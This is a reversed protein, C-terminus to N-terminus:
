LSDSQVQREERVEDVLDGQYVGYTQYISQRIQSLAALIEPPSLRQRDPHSTPNKILLSKMFNLAVQLQSEPLIELHLLLEQKLTYSSM